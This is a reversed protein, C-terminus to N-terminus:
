GGAEAAELMARNEAALSDVTEGPRWHRSLPGPRQVLIAEIDEREAPFVVTYWGQWCIPCLFRPDEPSVLLAASCGDTPCEAIWRGDNVYAATEGAIGSTPVEDVTMARGAYPNENMLAPLAVIPASRLDPRDLPAVYSTDATLIRFPSSM